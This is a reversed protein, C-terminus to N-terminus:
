KLNLSFILLMYKEWLIYMIKIQYCTFKRYLIIRQNKVLNRCIILYINEFEKDMGNSKSSDSHTGNKGDLPFYSRYLFHECVYKSDIDFEINIQDSDEKELEKNVDKKGPLTPFSVRSPIKIIEDFVGSM